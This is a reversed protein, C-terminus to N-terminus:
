DPINSSSIYKKIQQPRSLLSNFYVFRVSTSNEGVMQCKDIDSGVKFPIFGFHVFCHAWVFESQATNTVSQVMAESANNAPFRDVVLKAIGDASM